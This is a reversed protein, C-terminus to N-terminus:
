TADTNDDSASWSMELEAQQIARMAYFVPVAMLLFPLQELVMGGLKVKELMSKGNHRVHGITLFDILDNPTEPITDPRDSITIDSSRIEKGTLNGSAVIMKAFEQRRDTYYAVHNATSLVAVLARTMEQFEKLAEKDIDPGHCQALVSAFGDLDKQDYLRETM